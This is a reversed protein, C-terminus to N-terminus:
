LSAALENRIRDQARQYDSQLSRVREMVRHHIDRKMQPMANALSDKIEREFQRRTSYVEYGTWIGGLVAIVDGVPLPGDAAAVAASGAATAAPKAFISAALRGIESVMGRVLSTNMVAAVELTGTIALVGGGIGLDVLAKDLDGSTRADVQVDLDKDNSISNTQALEVALTVTSERLALEYRDLATELERGCTDVAPQLRSRIEGDVYDATSASWGLQEKALRYIITSCSAYTSVEEAARDAQREIEAFERDLIANIDNETSRAAQDNRANAAAMSLRVREFFTDSQRTDAAPVSLPPERPVVPDRGTKLALVAVIALVFASLLSVTRLNMNPGQPPTTTESGSVSVHSLRSVGRMGESKRRHIRHRVSSLWVSVM